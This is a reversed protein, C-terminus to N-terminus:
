ENSSFHYFLNVFWILNLYFNTKLQLVFNIFIVVKLNTNSLKCNNESKQNCISITFYMWSWRKFVNFHFNFQFKKFKCHQFSRRKSSARDKINYSFTGKEM